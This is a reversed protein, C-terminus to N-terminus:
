EWFKFHPNIRYRNPYGPSEAIEIIGLEELSHLARRIASESYGTALALECNRVPYFSDNHIGARDELAILVFRTMSPLERWMFPKLKRM